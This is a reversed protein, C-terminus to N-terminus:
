FNYRIGIKATWASSFDVDTFNNPYYGNYVPEIQYKGEDSLGGFDYLAVQPYRLRREIGWDKNLLNAFNDITLYM